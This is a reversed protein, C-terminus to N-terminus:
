LDEDRQRPAPQAVGHRRDLRRVGAPFYVLPSSALGIFTVDVGQAALGRSWRPRLRHPPADCTTASWRGAGPAPAGRRAGSRRPSGSTSRTPYPGRVDYAKFIEALTMGDGLRLSWESFSHGARRDRM